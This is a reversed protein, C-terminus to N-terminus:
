RFLITRFAAQRRKETAEEQLNLYLLRPVGNKRSGMNLIRKIKQRKQAESLDNRCVKRGNRLNKRQM